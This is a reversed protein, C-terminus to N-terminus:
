SSFRDSRLRKALTLHLHFGVNNDKAIEKNEILLLQAESLGCQSCYQWQAFSMEQNELIYM